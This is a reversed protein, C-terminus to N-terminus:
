WLDESLLEKDVSWRNINDITRSSIQGCKKAYKFAEKRNLFVHDHTIFGQEIETYDNSKFGLLKLQDYIDKHRVDCLIVDSDTNKIHFKTASAIIM